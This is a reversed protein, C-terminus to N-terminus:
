QQMEQDNEMEEKLTQIRDKLDQNAPDQKLLKKYVTLAQEKHGQRLYIDALSMTAVNSVVKVSPKKAKETKEAKKKVSKKATKVKKTEDDNVAAIEIDTVVPEPKSASAGSFISDIDNQSVADASGSSVPPADYEVSKETTSSIVPEIITIEPIPPLEIDLGLEIANEDASAQESEETVNDSLEVTDIDQLIDLGGEGADTGSVNYYGDMGAASSSISPAAKEEKQVSAPPPADDEENISIMETEPFEIAAEEEPLSIEEEKAEPISAPEIKAPVESSEAAALFERVSDDADIDLMMEKLPDIEVSPKESVPIAEEVPEAEHIADEEPQTEEETISSDLEINDLGDLLSNGADGSDGGDVSYYGDMGAASASITPPPPEAPSAENVETPLEPEDLRIECLQQEEETQVSSVSPAEPLADLLASQEDLIRNYVSKRAKFEGVLEEKQGTMEPPLDVMETDASPAEPPTDNFDDINRNLPARIVETDSNEVAAEPQLPLGLDAMETEVETSSETAFSPLGAISDDESPIASSPTEDLFDIPQMSTPSIPREDITKAIMEAPSESIVAPDSVIKEETYYKEFRRFMDRVSVNLPDIESARKYFRAASEREGKQAHIDGMIKLAFLNKWDLRIVTEFESLAEDIRDMEFYCRGLLLHGTPYIPNARVGDECLTIAKDVQGQSRYVDALRAFAPSGPSRSVVKELHSIDPSTATM